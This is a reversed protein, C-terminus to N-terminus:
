KLMGRQIRTFLPVPVHHLFCTSTLSLTYGGQWGMLYLSRPRGRARIEAIGVFVQGPDLEIIARICDDGKTYRTALIVLRLVSLACLFNHKEFAQSNQLRKEKQPIPSVEHDRKNLADM